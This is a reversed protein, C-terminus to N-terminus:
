EHKPQRETLPTFGPRQEAAREIDKLARRERAVPDGAKTAQGVNEYYPIGAPDETSIDPFRRGGGPIELAKEASRGGGAKITHGQAELEDARAAVAARHAPGGLKGHPNPVRKTASSAAAAAKAVEGGKDMMRLVKGTTAPVFPILGAYSVPNKPETVVQHATIAWDLPEFVIGALGVLIDKGQALQQADEQQERARKRREHDVTLNLEDLEEQEAPALPKMFGLPDKSSLPAEMMGPPMILAGFAADSISPGPPGVQAEGALSASAYEVHHLADGAGVPQEGPLLGHAMIFWELWDELALATHPVVRRGQSEQEALVARLQERWDAPVRDGLTEAIWRNLAFAVEFLAAEVRRKVGRHYQMVHFYVDNFESM